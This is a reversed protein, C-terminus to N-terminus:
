WGLCRRSSSTLSFAQLRCEETNSESLDLHLFTPVSVALLTPTYLQKEPSNGHEFCIKSKEKKKVGAVLIYFLMTVSQKIIGLDTYIASKLKVSSDIQDEAHLFYSFPM